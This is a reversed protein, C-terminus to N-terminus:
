DHQDREHREIIRQLSEAKFDSREGRPRNLLMIVIVVAVGVLAGVGAIAVLEV